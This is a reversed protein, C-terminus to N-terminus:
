PYPPPEYTTTTTTTSGTTTPPAVATGGKRVQGRIEGGPNKTTHVNVYAAGTLLATVTRSKLKASGRQGSRCPGCLAVAIPGAKGPKGMHVHAAIAAGTLGHFTLRWALKGGSSTRTLGAAFSGGAGAKAGTPAPVENRAALTAKVAIAADDGGLRASGIGAWVGTVFLAVVVAAIGLTRKSM